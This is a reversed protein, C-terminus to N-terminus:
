LCGHSSIRWYTRNENNIDLSWKLGDLTLGNQVYRNSTVYIDDDFDVFDHHRVQWYTSLTAVVLCLCIVWEIRFGRYRLRGTGCQRILENM